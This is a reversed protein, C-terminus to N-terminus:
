LFNFRRKTFLFIQWRVQIAMSDFSLITLQRDLGFVLYNELYIYDMLPPGSLGQALTHTLGMDFDM